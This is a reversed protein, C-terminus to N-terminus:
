LPRACEPPAAGCGLEAALGMLSTPCLEPSSLMTHGQSVVVARAGLGKSALTVTAGNKPHQYPPHGCPSDRHHWLADGTGQPARVTRTCGCPRPRSTLRSTSTPFGFTRHPYSSTPSMTPVTATPRPGLQSGRHTPAARPLATPRVEIQKDQFVKNISANFASGSFMSTIPYTLDLVTEFVSNMCQLCLYPLFSSSSSSSSFFSPSFLFPSPFFLLLLLLSPSIFYLLFYFFPSFILLAFFLFFFLFLFLFLVPLHKLFVRAM